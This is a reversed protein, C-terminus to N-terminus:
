DLSLNELRTKLEHTQVFRRCYIQRCSKGSSDLMVEYAMLPSGRGAQGVAVFRCVDGRCTLYTELVKMQEMTILRNTLLWFCDIHNLTESERQSVIRDALEEDIGPIALLVERPATRINVRGRIVSEKFISANDLFSNLLDGRAMLDSKTFPSRIVIRDSDDDSGSGIIVRTDILELLSSFEFDPPVTFDITVESASRSNTESLSSANETPPEIGHQRALVVYNAVEVNVREALAQHVEFLDSGNLLVRPEGTSSENREASHVTLYRGWGMEEEPIEGFASRSGQMGQNTGKRGVNSRGANDLSTNGLSANGPDAGQLSFAGRPIGPINELERLDPPIANRPLPGGAEAYFDSEAGFERPVDDEDIWDLIRDATEDTMGPLQKLAARGSGPVQLEWRLLSALHIRASEDLVGPRLTTLDALVRGWIVFEPDDLENERDFRLEIRRLSENNSLGGDAMREALSSELLSCVRVRASFAAQRSQLRDGAHAAALNQNRMSILFGYTLLTILLVVTVVVFLVVGRRRVGTLYSRTATSPKM